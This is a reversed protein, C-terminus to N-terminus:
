AGKIVGLKVLGRRIPGTLFGPKFAEVLVVGVLVVALVGFAFWPHKFPEKVAVKAGTLAEGPKALESAISM